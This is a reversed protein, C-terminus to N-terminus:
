RTASIIARAFIALPVGVRSVADGKSSPDPMFEGIAVSAVSVERCLEKCLEKWAVRDGTWAERAEEM